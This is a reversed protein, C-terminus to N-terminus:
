IYKKIFDPIGELDASITFTFNCGTNKSIIEFNEFLSQMEDLKSKTIRKLADVFVYEIDHNAALMGKVFNIIADQGIISFDSCDVYRIKNNVERTHQNNETIYVVDGKAIKLSDNAASLLQKTKGSGKAGYIISIM